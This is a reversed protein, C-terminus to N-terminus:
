GWRHLYEEVSWVREEVEVLEEKAGAWVYVEAQVEVEVATTETGVGGEGSEGREDEVEVGVVVSVLDYLGAEYRELSERQGNTLGFFLLGDVEPVSELSDTVAAKAVAPFSTDRLALREYGRLTAPTMLSAIQEASDTAGIVLAIQSPFILSGYVFLPNKARKAVTLDTPQTSSFRNALAHLYTAPLPSATLAPIAM